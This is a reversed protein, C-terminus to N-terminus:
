MFRRRVLADFHRVLENSQNWGMKIKLEREIFYEAEPFANSNQIKRISREFMTEDGNFLENIFRYRDNVNIAKKLDKIPENNLKQSLEVTDTKLRDNISAPEAPTEEAKEVQAVSGEENGGDEYVPIPESATSGESANPEPQESTEINQETLPTIPLTEEPKPEAEKGTKEEYTEPDTESAPNMETRRAEDDTIPTAEDTGHISTNEGKAQTDAHGNGMNQSGAPAVNAPMWVAVTAPIKFATAALMEQQLTHSLQTALTYLEAANYQEAPTRQIAAILQSPTHM